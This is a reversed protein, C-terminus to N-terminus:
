CRCCVVSLGHSHPPPHLALGYSESYHLLEKRGVASRLEGPEAFWVVASTTESGSTALGNLQASERRSEPDWTNFVSIYAFGGPSVQGIVAALRTEFVAKPLHDLVTSCVVLDFGDRHIPELTGLDALVPEFGDGCARQAEDLGTASADIGVVSWGRRCLLRSHRGDGCGVDLASRGCTASEIISVCHAFEPEPPGYYGNRQTTTSAYVSDFNVM